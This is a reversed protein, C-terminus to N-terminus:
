WFFRYPMTGGINNICLRMVYQCGCLLVVATKVLKRRGPSQIKDLMQPLLIILYPGFLAAARAAYKLSFTLCFLCMNLVFMTMGVHCEAMVLGHERKTMLFWVLLVLGAYFVGVLLAEGRDSNAALYKDFRNPVLKLALPRIVPFVASITGGAMILLTSKKLNLHVSRLIWYMPIFILAASHITSAALCCLMYNWVAGKKVYTFANYVILIAIANRTVNMETQYIGLTIYLWISLMCDPSNRGILKYLLLMILVSNLVTIAQPSSWLWSLLKNMLRYGPEFDFEWTKQGTAYTTASFVKWLPIDEFQTFVYCYHKTDVGVSIDRMAMFFCLIGCAIALAFGQTKRGTLNGAHVVSLPYLMLVCIMIYWFM